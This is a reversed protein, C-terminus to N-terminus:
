ICYNWLLATLTFCFVSFPFLYLNLSASCWFFSLYFSFIHPLPLSFHFPYRHFRLLLEVSIEDWEEKLHYKLLHNIWGNFSQYKKRCESRAHRSPCYITVKNIDQIRELGRRHTRPERPISQVDPDSCLVKHASIADNTAPILTSDFPCIITGSENILIEVTSAPSPSQMM